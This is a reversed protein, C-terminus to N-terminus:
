EVWCCPASHCRDRALNWLSVLLLSAPLLNETLVATWTGSCCCQSTMKQSQWDDGHIVFHSHSNGVQQKMLFVQEDEANIEKDHVLQVSFFSFMTTGSLMKSSVLRGVHWESHPRVKRMPPKTIVDEFPDEPRVTTFNEHLIAIKKENDWGSPSSPFFASKRIKGAFSAPSCWGGGGGGGSVHVSRGKGGSLSVHHVSLRVDQTRHIQLASGPEEGRESLYLHPRRWRSTSTLAVAPCVIASESQGQVSPRQNRGLHIQEAHKVIAESCNLPYVTLFIKEPPVSYFWLARRQLRAGERARQRRWVASSM